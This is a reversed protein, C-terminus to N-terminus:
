REEEKEGESVKEKGAEMSFNEAKENAATNRHNKQSDSFM